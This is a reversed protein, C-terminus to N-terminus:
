AMMQSIPSSASRASTTWFALWCCQHQWDRHVSGCRLSSPSATPLATSTSALSSTEAGRSVAAEVVFAHGELM